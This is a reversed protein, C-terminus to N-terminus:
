SLTRKEFLFLIKNIKPIFQAEKGVKNLISKKEM